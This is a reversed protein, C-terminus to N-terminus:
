LMAVAMGVSLGFINIFSSVKNNNKITVSVPTFYLFCNFRIQQM